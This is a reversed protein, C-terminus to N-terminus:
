EVPCGGHAERGEAASAGRVRNEAKITKAFRCEGSVHFIGSNRSAVFESEDVEEGAIPAASAPEFWVPATWLLDASGHEVAQTIKILFFQRGGDYTLGEIRGPANPPTNGAQEVESFTAAIGDGGVTDSLVEIDYSADPEDEDRLMYEIAFATGPAPQPLIDGMLVRQNGVVAHAVFSLNADLTAFVHRAKLAALLDSKTLAPAIVGTRTASLTGWNKFHNDQNGTPALHFGRDLYRLYQTQFRESRLGTENKTGPGNFIEILEAHKDLAAVWEATTDFDDAGYEVRSKKATASEDDPDTVDGPGKSFPHNLQLLQPTGTTDPHSPLYTELLTKFQGKPVEIVTPVDFVNVHNGQSIASFEQGYLAVFEGNVTHAKAAEILSAPQPGNYLTPDSAILIGDERDGAGGEAEIHNHETIALFDLGAVNRAFAFAEAPTGSGDSYSTHSHLNGFYVQLGGTSLPAATVTAAASPVAMSLLATSSSAPETEGPIPAPGAVVVSLATLGTVVAAAAGEPVLSPPM